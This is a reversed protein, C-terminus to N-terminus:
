TMITYVQIYSQCMQLYPTKVIKILQYTQLRKVVMVMIINNTTFDKGTARQAQHKKNNVVM